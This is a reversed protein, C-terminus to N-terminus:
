ASYSSALVAEIKSTADKRLGETIVTGHERAYAINNQGTGYAPWGNEIPFLTVKYMSGSFNSWFGIPAYTKASKLAVIGDKGYSVKM